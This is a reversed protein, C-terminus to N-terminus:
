ITVESDDPSEGFSDHPSGGPPGSGCTSFWQGILIFSDLINWLITYMCQIDIQYVTSNETGHDNRVQCFFSSNEQSAKISLSNTGGETLSTVQGGSVRYWTYKTVAPNAESSCTLTVTSGELPASGSPSISVTTNRPPDLYISFGM